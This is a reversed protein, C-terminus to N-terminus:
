MGDIAFQKSKKKKFTSFFINKISHNKAYILKGDIKQKM